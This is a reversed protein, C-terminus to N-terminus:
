LKQLGSQLKEPTSENKKKFLNKIKLSKKSKEKEKQGDSPSQLTIRPPPLPTEEEALPRCQPLNPTSASLSASATAMSHCSKELIGDYVLQSPVGVLYLDSSSKGSGQSIVTLDPQGCHELAGSDQRALSRKLVELSSEDKDSPIKEAYSEMSCDSDDRPLRPSGRRLSGVSMQPEEEVIKKNITAELGLEQKDMSYSTLPKERPLLKVSATDGCYELEDRSIKKPPIKTTEAKKDITLARVSADHPCEGKNRSIKRYSTDLSLGMSERKIRRPMAEFPRDTDDRKFKRSASDMSIGVVDASIKRPAADAIAELENWLMKRVDRPLDSKDRYLNRSTIDMFDGVTDREAKTALYDEELEDSLGKRVTVIDCRDRSIKRSSTELFSGEKSTKLSATEFSTDLVKDKAMKRCSADVSAELEQVSIKRVPSEVVAEVEKRLPKAVSRDLVLETEDDFLNQSSADVTPCPFLKSLSPSTIYEPDSFEESDRNAFLFLFFLSFSSVLSFFM